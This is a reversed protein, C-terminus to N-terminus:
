SREREEAFQEVRLTKKLKSVKAYRSYHGFAFSYLLESCTHVKTSYPLDNGTSLAKLSTVPLTEPFGCQTFCPSFSVIVYLTLM